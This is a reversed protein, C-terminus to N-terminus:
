RPHHQTQEDACFQYHIIRCIQKHNISKTTKLWQLHPRSYVLVEKAFVNWRRQSFFFDLLHQPSSITLKELLTIRSAPSARRSGALVGTILCVHVVYSSRWTLCHSCQYTFDIQAKISGTLACTLPFGHLIFAQLKIVGWAKGSHEVHAFRAPRAQLSGSFFCHSM